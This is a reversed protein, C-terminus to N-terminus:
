PNPGYIVYRANRYSMPLELHREASTVLFDARYKQMLATARASSLGAYGRELAERIEKRHDGRVPAPPWPNIDGSLDSLRTYWETVGAQNPALLKFKAVTAREALWNFNDLSAPPSLFVAHRPTHVRVWACLEKWHPDADQEEGPFDRLALIRRRFDLGQIACAVGIVCLCAMMLWRRSRGPFAEELVCSFLLCTNLPLMVDGLRFPYYQLLRGQEDFPAILLGLAFPVLALLTFLALGLRAARETKLGKSRPASRLFGVCILLALLYLFPRIWWDSRWSLPNLHHPARLFAHVYSPSIPGPSAPAFFEQVGPQVVLSAGILFLLLLSAFYRWDRLHARGRMLLWLFAVLAAWGGVLVHFSVAIGLLLATWRFHGWLMLGIALLLLGYAVSKPEVGGIIWEQAAVGQKPTLYLFLGVAVLLSPLSIGLRRAILVLGWAILAYSLLRGILSAALFGWPPVMWGVLAVFALRYGPPQSLRWDGPIWEPEAFQRAFPLNDVENVSGMNGHLLAKLSMFATVALIWLVIAPWARKGALAFRGSPSLTEISTKM